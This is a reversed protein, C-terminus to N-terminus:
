NEITWNPATDKSQSLLAREYDHLEEPDAFPDPLEFSDSLQMPSAIPPCPITKPLNFNIVKCRRRLADIAAQGEDAFVEEITYQSTIIVRKPRLSRTGGKIEGTFSWKDTWLKLHYALKSHNPDMDEIIVCDHELPQYGDWWKNCPKSFYTGYDHRAAHTKGTGTAGYLWFGCTDELDDPKKMKDTAIQHMTRYQSMYKGPMEAKITEFDGAESLEIFRKALNKNAQQQTIPVIGYEVFDGDKKCYEINQAPTGKCKEIHARPVMRKIASAARDKPLHIFGQLHPTGADGKEKGYVIYTSPNLGHWIDIAKFEVDTPNNLTWCWNRSKQPGQPM